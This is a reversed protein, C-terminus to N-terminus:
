HPFYPIMLSDSYASFQPRLSVSMNIPNVNVANVVFLLLEACPQYLLTLDIGLRDGLVLVFFFKSFECLVIVRTRIPVSSEWIPQYSSVNDM